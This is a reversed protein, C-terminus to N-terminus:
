WGLEDTVRHTVLLGIENGSVGTEDGFVGVRVPIFATKDGSPRQHPLLM